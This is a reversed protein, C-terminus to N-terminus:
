SAPITTISSSISTVASRRIASWSQSGATGSNKSPRPNAMSIEDHIERVLVGHSYEQVLDVQGNFNRDSEIEVM